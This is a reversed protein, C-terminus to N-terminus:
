VMHERVTLWGLSAIAWALLGFVFVALAMVLRRPHSPEQPMHPQVFTSLYRQTRVADARAAELAQLSALYAKEAFQRELDLTEFENLLQSSLEPAGSQAGPRAIDARAASIQEEVADLRQGLNLVPPAEPSMSKALISMQTRLRVREEQLKSMIALGAGASKLPDIVGTRDRFRKIMAMASALRAEMRRVDAEATALTEERARRSLDNVLRESLRLAERGIELADQRTFARVSATVIGTQHDFHVNIKDRWYEALDEVPADAGLRSLLDAEPRRYVARLDIAGAIDELLQRSKLYEVVIYSDPGVSSGGLGGFAAGIQDTLAPRDNSRVALQFEASYQDAAVFALYISALVTPAAVLALFAARAFSLRARFHAAGRASVADFFRTPRSTEGNDGSGFAPVGAIGTREPRDM